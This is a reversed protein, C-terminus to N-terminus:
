PHGVVDDIPRELEEGLPSATAGVHGVPEVGLRSPKPLFEVSEQPRDSVARSGGADQCFDLVPRLYWRHQAKTV